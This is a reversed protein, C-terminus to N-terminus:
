LKVLKDHINVDTAQVTETVCRCFPCKLTENFKAETAKLNGKLCDVCLQHNCNLTVNCTKDYCIGCEESCMKYEPLVTLKVNSIQQTSVQSNRAQVDRMIRDVSLQIKYYLTTSLKRRYLPDEIHNFINEYQRTPNNPEPLRQLQAALEYHRILEKKVPCMISNSTCGERRCGSCCRKKVSINVPCSAKGKHCGEQHCQCCKRAFLYPENLM